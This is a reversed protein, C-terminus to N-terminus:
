RDRSSHEYFTGGKCSQITLCLVILVCFASFYPLCFIKQPMFIVWLLAMLTGAFHGTNETLELVNKQYSGSQKCLGTIAFVTGGGFGTLLWLFVCWPLRATPLCTLILLLFAHGGIVIATYNPNGSGATKQAPCFLRLILPEATLYTLWTASFFLATLFPDQVKQYIVWLFPYSYIFYHLQHWLMIHYCSEKKISCYMDYCSRANEPKAPLYKLSFITIICCAYLLFLPMYAMLPSCLFGLVRALRKHLTRVNGKQTSRICQLTCSLTMVAASYFFCQLWSTNQFLLTCYLLIPSSVAMVAIPAKGPYFPVPFLNGMQYSLCLFLIYAPDYGLHIGLFVPGCELLATMTSLLLFM